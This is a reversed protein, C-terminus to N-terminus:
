IGNNALLYTRDVKKECMCICCNCYYCICWAIVIIAIITIIILLISADEM